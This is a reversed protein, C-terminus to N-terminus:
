SLPGLLTLALVSGCIVVAFFVAVVWAPWPETPPDQMWAHHRSDRIVVGM